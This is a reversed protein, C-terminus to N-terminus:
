EKYHFVCFHHTQQCHTSQMFICVGRNLEIAAAAKIALSESLGSSERGDCALRASSMNMYTHTHTHFDVHECLDVANDASNREPTMPLDRGGVGSVAIRHCIGLSTPPLNRFTTAKRFTPKRFTAALSAPCLIEALSM